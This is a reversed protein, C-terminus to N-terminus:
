PAVAGDGVDATIVVNVIGDPAVSARIRIGPPSFKELTSAIRAAPSVTHAGLEVEGRSFRRPAVDSIGPVASMARIVAMLDSFHEAGSVHIRVIGGPGESPRSAIAPEIDHIATELAGQVARDRAEAPKAAYADKVAVEKARERGDSDLVKAEVRAHATALDVGRIQGTDDTAINLTLAGEAGGSRLNALLSPGECNELVVFEVNKARALQEIWKSARVAGCVLMKTRLRPLAPPTKMNSNSSLDHALRVTAVQAMVHVQFSSGQDGEELVRYNSVYIRSKPYIRLKLESSRAVLADPDLVTGVAQEVAQRLAEDLARERARVRDGSMMPAQGLGEFSPDQAWALFCFGLLAVALLSRM